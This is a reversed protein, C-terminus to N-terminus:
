DEKAALGYLAVPRNGKGQVEGTKVFGDRQVIDYVRKYPLGANDSIAQASLSGSRLAARVRSEDSAHELLESSTELGIRKVNVAGARGDFDFRLAIPLPRAGDNAKRCYMGVDIQDEGDEQKRAVFWTRRANNHWFISGFPKQSDGSKTNHAITISARGIKRLTRSYAVAVAADEPAGGCAPGASDVIVIGVGHADCSRKIAEWQDDLPIGNANWYYIGAPELDPDIASVLRKVRRRFNRENDEYDVFMVPMYPFSMHALPIGLSFSVAIRLAIYSKASGGDGFIITPADAPLLPEVLMVDEIADPMAFVDVARDISLYAEIAM